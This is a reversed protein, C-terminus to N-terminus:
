RGPLVAIRTRRQRGEHSALLLYIGAAVPEGTHNRGHWQLGGDGDTEEGSWVLEGSLSYIRVRSGEPLGAVTMEQTLPNLPNPFVIIEDLRTAQLAVFVRAEVGRGLDDVLGKLTVEYRRGLPRMPTDPSLLIEVWTDREGSRVEDLHLNGGDVVVVAADLTVPRDFVAVISVESTATARLLRTAAVLPVLDIDIATTKLAAGQESRLGSLVLSVVGDDPLDTSFAIVVRRGSRDLIVAEAVAVDPLLRYRFPEAVEPGMPQDFQVTIQRSSQRGAGVVRPLPGPTVTLGRTRHGTAGTSDIAVVRYSYARGATLGSDLYGYAPAETDAIQVLDEDDRRIRYAVAGPVAEWDLQVRDPGGPVAAWGAPAFLDVGPVRWRVTELGGAAPSFVMEQRGDGDLDGVAPRQTRRVQTYWVPEYGGVGDYQFVYLHPVLVVVWELRGDGNLDTITIGNGSASGAVVQTQWEIGYDDDATAGYVTLTWRRSEIDFPDRRLRGSVFEEDGDGDLDAAASLLRGDIDDGAVRDTWILRYANDGVSEFAILDGDSDGCIWEGRGDGDLDGVSQRDGMENEGPTDNVLAATEVYSDDGDTEFVRFLPGTASRLIMEPRADGDLDAVEGGWVGRMEWTVRDPYAGIASPELIRVRRADVALLDTKGDLDFDGTEWPIFLRSTTFTALDDDEEFFSTAGYAGGGYIMAVVEGRGDGDFDTFRPLLYGDERLLPLSALDWHEVGAPRVHLSEQAAVSGGDTFVAVAYDGPPLDQPLTVVHERRGEPESVRLVLKGAATIEVTGSAERDTSWEVTHVWRPGQLVRALRLDSLVAGGRVLDVVLRDEHGRGSDDGIRVRITYRGSDLAATQWTSVLVGAGPGVSGVDLAEWLQPAAGRGWDIDYAAEDPAEFHVEIEVTPGSVQRDAPRVFTVALPAPASAAPLRLLGHGSAEDWASAGADRAASVLAGLVQLRSYEPHRARVLAAAGSVHPAAMSTGSLDGYGGGPETSHIALGPAILDISAGRNSFPTPLADRGAAGVGITEDLRAPYYVDASGENGAAAVVVIDLDTAYRVADALLPSYRPDGLSLNIVHAGNDAAYVIAAAVDDDQLYGSSGINFGARLVMLSAGPAVGAIGIGNDSTAAVIGAVHTGHGSEDNPDNDADVFDGDGPLGPADTFDWGAVDDVYGNGDDDVGELGAVEAPNHWIQAVLDPHDADVGSDIIAVLVGAASGPDRSRWGVADLNWQEDLLPDDTTYRTLRRLYNPQLAEVGPAHRYRQLLTDVSLRGDFRLRTWREIRRSGARRPARATRPVLPQMTRLGSVAHLSDLRAAPRATGPAWRILLEPVPPPADGAAPCSLLAVLLTALRAGIGPM